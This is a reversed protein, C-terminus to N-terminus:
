KITNSNIFSMFLKTISNINLKIQDYVDYKKSTDGNPWSKLVIEYECRAWFQYRAEKILFWKFQNFTKPKQSKPIKNYQNYFYPIVNYSEFQKLNSNYICVNYEIM